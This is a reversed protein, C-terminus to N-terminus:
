PEPLTELLSTRLESERLPLKTTILAQQRAEDTAHTSPETTSARRTAYVYYNSTTSALLSWDQEVVYLPWQHFPSQVQWEELVVSLCRAVM